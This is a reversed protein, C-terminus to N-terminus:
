AIRRRWCAITSCVFKHEGRRQYLSNVVLIVARCAVAPLSAGNSANRARGVARCPRSNGRGLYHYRPHAAAAVRVWAEEIEHSGVSVVSPRIIRLWLKGDGYCAINQRALCRGRAQLQLRRHCLSQIVLLM